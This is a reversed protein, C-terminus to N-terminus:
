VTDKSIEKAQRNRTFLQKPLFASLLDLLLLLLIIKAIDLTFSRHDGHRTPSADVKTPFPYPRPDLTNSEQADIFNVALYNPYGHEHEIELIGPYPLTIARSPKTSSNSEPFIQQGGIYNVSTVDKEIVFNSNALRFSENSALDSLWKLANLTLISTIPASKGEFPFLEFGFAGYRHEQFEGAVIAPGASTSLIEKAWAPAALPTLSTLQLAPLNVYSILPHSDQWRTIDARNTTNGANFITSNKPPVVFLSNVKPLEAPAFRHFVAASWGKDESTAWNEPAVHEFHVSPINTLKLEEPSFASVLAVRQAVADTGIWASNDENISDIQINTVDAKVTARYLEFKRGSIDFSANQTQGPSLTTNKQDIQAYELENGSVTVGEILVQVPAPNRSFAILSVNLETQQAIADKKLGINTIAINNLGQNQETIPRALFLEDSEKTIPQRDSFIAVRDYIKKQAINQLSDELHDAGYALDIDSFTRQAQSPSVPASNVLSLRPSTSFVDIKSDAALGALYGSAERKALSLLTESSGTESNHAALSLSNDIVVAFRKANDQEFLGAAAAILLLLLLLEFFFRPPPFFKSRSVAQHKLSRLLLLTPVIKPTGTGRKLYAYILLGAVIPAAALIAPYLVGYNAGFMGIM